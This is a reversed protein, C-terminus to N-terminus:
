QRLLVVPNKHEPNAADFEVLVFGDLLSPDIKTKGIIRDDLLIVKM